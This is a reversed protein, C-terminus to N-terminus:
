FFQARVRNANRMLGFGQDRQAIVHTISQEFIAQHAAAMNPQSWTQSPQMQLYAIAGSAIARRCEDL